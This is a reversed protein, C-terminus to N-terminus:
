ADFHQIHNPEIWETNKLVKHQPYSKGDSGTQDKLSKVAYYDGIREYYTEVSLSDDYYAQTVEVQSITKCLKSMNATMTEDFHVIPDCGVFAPIPLAFVQIDTFADVIEERLKDFSIEGDKYKKIWALGERAEDAVQDFQFEISQIASDFEAGEKTLFADAIKGSEKGYANNMELTDNVQQKM